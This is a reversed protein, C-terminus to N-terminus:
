NVGKSLWVKESTVVFGLSEALGQMALNDSGTGLEVAQAGRDKLMKMGATVIAKGLGLRHYRPRVGIPDTFGVQGDADELWCICFAALEGDPSVALLDLEREYRPARMIALREEMTMNLTGFAARHLEVLAEVEGEGEACRLSFGRPFPHERIPERLSRSYHLSRFEVREFGRRELMALRPLDDADLCIDLTRQGGEAHDKKVCAIGWAVIEDELPDTRSAPEIEFFLNNFDDVFAFAALRGGEKWLRTRARVGTLQMVEDLDASSRRGSRATLERMSQLDDATHLPTKIM